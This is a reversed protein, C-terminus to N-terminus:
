MADDRVKIGLGLFDGGVDQHVPQDFRHGGRPAAEGSKEALRTAIGTWEIAAPGDLRSRRKRSGDTMARSPDISSFARVTTSPNREPRCRLGYLPNLTSNASYRCYM